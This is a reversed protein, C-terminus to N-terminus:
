KLKVATGILRNEASLLGYEFTYSSDTTSLIKFHLPKKEAMSKPNLSKLIYECDNIWKVSASDIKGSYDDIELAGFRKFTSEQLDGNLETKFIFEGNKYQSCERNPGSACSLCLLAYLFYLQHKWNM